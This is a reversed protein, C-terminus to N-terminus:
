PANNVHVEQYLTAAEGDKGITLRIALLGYRATVNPDGANYMFQCQTVNTALLASNGGVPPDTQVVTIPYGWYRRLTQTTLDCRYTVPTDVVQFRHSPSDFPFANGAVLKVNNGAVASFARRNNGEYADAGAVGLNYVVIQDGAQFSMPPGFNDFSTDGFSFDLPDNGSNGVAISSGSDAESRYRGGTRTQLFEVTSSNVLRVSNPLALHVDRVIRRTATDAIDTLEARRASDLYGQVPTRIFIAVVGAIIGTIVIVIVAEVLTFGRQNRANASLPMPKHSLMPRM